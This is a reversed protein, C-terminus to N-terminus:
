VWCNQIINQVCAGLSQACIKVVIRSQFVNTPFRMSTQKPPPPFDLLAAVELGAFRIALEAAFYVGFVVECVVFAVPGEFAHADPPAGVRASYDTDWGIEITNLWIMVM